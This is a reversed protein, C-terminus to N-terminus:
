RAVNRDFEEWEPAEGKYYPTGKTALTPLRSSRNLTRKKIATLIHMPRVGAKTMAEIKAKQAPARRRYVNHAAPDTLPGHNHEANRVELKWQGSSTKFIVLKFPCGTTRTKTKLTTAKSESTRM